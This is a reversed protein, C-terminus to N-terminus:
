AISGLKNPNIPTEFFLFPELEKFGDEGPSPPFRTHRFLSVKVPIDSNIAYHSNAIYLALSPWLFANQEQHAVEVYKRFREALVRDWQPLRSGRAFSITRSEGTDYEIRAEVWIDSRIPNPAFMNWNQHTSTITLYDEIISDRVFREKYALLVASFNAFTERWTIRELDHIFGSPPKPISILVIAILHFYIIFRLFIKNSLQAMLLAGLFVEFLYPM